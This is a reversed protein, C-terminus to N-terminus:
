SASPSTPRSSLDHLMAIFAPDNRLSVLDPDNQMWGFNTHGAEVAQRLADIARTSEGLGVYMCAADYLMVPDGTSLVLAQELKGETFYIRGLTWHAIFDDPDIEIAKTCSTTAEDLKGWM